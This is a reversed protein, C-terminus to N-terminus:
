TIYACNNTGDEDKKKKENKFIKGRLASLGSIVSSLFNFFLYIFFAGCAHM